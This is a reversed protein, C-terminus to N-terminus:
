ISKVSMETKFIDSLRPSAEIERKFITSVKDESSSRGGRPIQFGSVDKTVM